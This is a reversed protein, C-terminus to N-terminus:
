GSGDGQGRVLDAYLRDALGIGGAKVLAEAQARVLFSAFQGEGAGGGAMGPTRGFGAHTLMEALFAAEFARAAVRLPDDPGPRRASKPGVQDAAIRLSPPEM